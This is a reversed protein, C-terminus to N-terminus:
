AEAAVPEPGVYRAEPRILRGGNRQEHYHASWGAVRGVAFVGTFAERPLGVAELLVATYFEVNTDLRRDPKHRALEELAVREIEEARTLRPHKLRSVAQKLVEARPDRVRYVRHGFGMLRRGAALEARIWARPDPECADLMDLVPGPAGGHLPGELAALAGVLTPFLEAATSAIVRATFTSPNLGHESVTCLYAELAQWREPEVAQGEMMELLSQAHRGDKPEVPTLGRRHRIVNALGVALAGAALHHQPVGPEDRLVNLLLRLAAPYTLGDTRSFWPQLQAYARARAPSLDVSPEQWLLECVTEYSVKGALEELRKGRLVLEGKLGDVRSLTTETVVVGELGTAM